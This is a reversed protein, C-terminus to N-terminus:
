SKTKHRYISNKKRYVTPTMNYKRKFLRNFYSVNEFGAQQSIELISVNETQLLQTAVALRYDNLYQTFGYGTTEKFFKMFHSNSYYCIKAIEDITIQHQYNNQIYELVLKIKDISKQYKVLDTKKNNTYLYFLFMMLCSKIALQYGEPKYKSLESIQKICALTNTYYPLKPQIWAPFDVYGNLIPNIIHLNCIDTTKSKLMEAKFLINEYEMLAYGLATISHLQGPLVVIIDGAKVKYSVLNVHVLGEGRKIVILEMEIHWHLSVQTFDLPISCLYTNYPFDESTHKKTEHYIQYPLHKM